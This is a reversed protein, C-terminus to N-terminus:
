EFTRELTFNQVHENYQSLLPGMVVLLDIRMNEKYRLMELENVILQIGINEKSDNKWFPGKTFLARFVMPPQNVKGEFTRNNPASSLDIIKELRYMQNEYVAEIACILGVYAIGQRVM